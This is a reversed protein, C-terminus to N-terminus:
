SPLTQTPPAWGSSGSGALGLKAGGVGVAGAEGFRAGGLVAVGRWYWTQSTHEGHQPAVTAEPVVM